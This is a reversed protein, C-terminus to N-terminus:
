CLENRWMSTVCSLVHHAAANCIFIWLIYTNDTISISSLVQFGHKKPRCSLIGM